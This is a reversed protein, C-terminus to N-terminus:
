SEHTTTTPHKERLYSLIIEGIVLSVILVLLFVGITAGTGAGVGFTSQYSGYVIPWVVTFIILGVVVILLRFITSRGGPMSWHRTRLKKKTSSQKTATTKKANLRAMASQLETDINTTM